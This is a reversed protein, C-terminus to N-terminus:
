VKFDTGLLSSIAKSCRARERRVFVSTMDARRKLMDFDLGGPAGAHKRSAPKGPRGSSRLSALSSKVRDYAIRFPVGRAVLELAKDTAFIEAVMGEALAERNVRIGKVLLSLIRTSALTESIGEIFPGKTEQLDRNYGGPLGRIIEAVAFAHALVRASKARVLELVDPNRKQPMISSGTCYEAPLTFYGFEPMSFIILDASLRSLTLMVQAMAFLIVSECKGRANIAHMVNHIPASFGLLRATLERDIPLAVGYGAAAGLPSRDNLKHAERLLSIDDLLSEAYASAWLGVSSPMAPQLHTRGAMPVLRHRQAFSTLEASLTAAADITKLLETRGFLRLDVAVQDNRSRATHMRRGLDGLKDTIVREVAMHVDQDSTGIHFEGNRADDMIEVLGAIIRNRQAADLIRLKAPLKSLMTVHAASGICDADVLAMDLEPDRGVTFALVDRNITGVTTKLTESSTKKKM